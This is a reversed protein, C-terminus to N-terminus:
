RRTNRVKTTFRVAVRAKPSGMLLALFRMDERVLPPLDSLPDEAATHTLEVWGWRQEEKIWHSWRGTMFVDPPVM